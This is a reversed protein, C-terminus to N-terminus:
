KLTILERTVDLFKKCKEETIGEFRGSHLIGNRANFLEHLKSKIKSFREGEDDNLIKPIFHNLVQGINADDIYKKLTENLEEPLEQAVLTRLYTECAVAADVVARAYDGLRFHGRADFMLDYYIPPKEGNKLSREVSEWEIMTIPETFYVTGGCIASVWFRKQTDDLLYTSWGSEIGHIEPRGIYWKMSRWRLTRLWLDFSERAITSYEETLEELKKCQDESFLNYANPYVDLAQAPIQITQDKFVTVDVSMVEIGYPEEKGDDLKRRTRVRLRQDSQRPLTLCDSSPLVVKVLSNDYHFEHFLGLLKPEVELDRTIFRDLSFFKIKTYKHQTDKEYKGLQKETMM